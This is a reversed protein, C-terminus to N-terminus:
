LCVFEMCQAQVLSVNCDTVVGDENPVPCVGISPNVAVQVAEKCATVRRKLMNGDPGKKLKKFRFVLPQDSIDRLGFINHLHHLADRVLVDLGIIIFGFISLTLYNRQCSSAELKKSISGSLSKDLTLESTM